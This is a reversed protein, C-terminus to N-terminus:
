AGGGHELALRTPDHAIRGECTVLTAKVIEDQLDFDLRDKPALLKLFESLNKSYMRSADAAM